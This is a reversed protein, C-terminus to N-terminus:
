MWHLIWVETEWITSCAWCAKTANFHAATFANSHEWCWRRDGLGGGSGGPIPLCFRQAPLPILPLACGSIILNLHGWNQSPCCRKLSLYQLSVPNLLVKEGSLYFHGQTVQKTMPHCMRISPRCWMWCIRWRWSSCGAQQACHAGRAYNGFVQCFIGVLMKLEPRDIQWPLAVCMVAYLAILM